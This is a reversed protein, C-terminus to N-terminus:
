NAPNLHKLFLFFFLAIISCSMFVLEISGLKYLAPGFIYGTTIGSFTYLGRVGNLKATLGRPIERQFQNHSRLFMIQFSFGILCSLANVSLYSKTLLFGLESLVISFILLSYGKFREGFFREFIVNAVILGVVQSFIIQTYLNAPNDSISQCYTLLTSMFLGSLLMAVFIFQNATALVKSKNKSACSVLPSTRACSSVCSTCLSIFACALMLMVAFNLYNDPATLALCIPAIAMATTISLQMSTHTRSLHEANVESNIVSLRRLNIIRLLTGICFMLFCGWGLAASYVFMFFSLGTIAAFSCILGFFTNQNYSDIYPAVVLGTFVTSAAMASLFLSMEINSLGMHNVILPISAQTFRETLSIGFCLLVIIQNKLSNV